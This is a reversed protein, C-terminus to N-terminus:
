KNITFIKFPSNLEFIVIESVSIKSNYNHLLLNNMDTYWIIVHESTITYIIVVCTGSYISFYLTSQYTYTNKVLYMYNILHYYVRLFIYKENQFLIHLINSICLQFLLIFHYIVINSCYILNYFYILGRGNDSLQSLCEMYPLEIIGHIINFYFVILDSWFIMIDFDRIKLWTM